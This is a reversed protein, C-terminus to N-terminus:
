TGTECIKGFIGVDNYCAWEDWGVDNLKKKWSASKSFYRCEHNQVYTWLTYSFFLSSTNGLTKEM